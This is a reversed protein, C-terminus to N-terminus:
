PCQTFSSVEQWSGIQVSPFLRNIRIELRRTVNTAVGQICLTRNYNGAGGIVRIYCSDNGFKYRQEGPYTPDLRLSRLSREACTQAYELAQQAHVALAGNQEAAWGLLLLSVLTASSIAGVMLVTVLFVYGKHARQFMM